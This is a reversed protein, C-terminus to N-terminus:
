VASETNLGGAFCYDDTLDVGMPSTGVVGCSVKAKPYWHNLGWWCGFALLETMIQVGPKSIMPVASASLRGVMMALTVIIVTMVVSAVSLLVAGRKM